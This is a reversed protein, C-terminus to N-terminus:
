IHSNASFHWSFHAKDLKKNEKKSVFALINEPILRSTYGPNYILYGISIVFSQIMGGAKCRMESVKRM